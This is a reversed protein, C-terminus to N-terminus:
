DDYLDILAGPSQFQAKSYIHVTKHFSLAVDLDEQDLLDIMTEDDDVFCLNQPVETLNLADMVDKFFDDIHIGRKTRFSTNAKKNHIIIKIDSRRSSTTSRTLTESAEYIDDALTMNRLGAASVDEFGSDFSQDSLAPSPTQIPVPQAQGSLPFRSTPLSSKRSRLQSKKAFQKDKDLAQRQQQRSDPLRRSSLSSPSQPAVTRKPSKPYRPLSISPESANRKHIPRFSDDPRFRPLTASRMAPEKSGASHNDAETKRRVLTSGPTTEGPNIIAAGTFGIFGDDGTISGGAANEIGGSDITKPKTDVVLKAEKLFDKKKLNKLKEEPVRFLLHSPIAFLVANGPVMNTIISKHEYTRRCSHAERLLSDAKRGNGLELNCVALNYLVECRYM